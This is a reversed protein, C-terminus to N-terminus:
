VWSPSLSLDLVDFHLLLITEKIAHLAVFQLITELFGWSYLLFDTIKVAFVNTIPVCANILAM